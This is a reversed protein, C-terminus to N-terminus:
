GRKLRQMVRERADEWSEGPPAGDLVRQARREIEQIWERELKASDEDSEDLSALLMSAVDAREHAPLTMAEKLVREFKASM